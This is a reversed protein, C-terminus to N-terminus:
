KILELQVLPAADGKRPGLKLIRTYGGDRGVYRPALEAFVKKVIAKNGILGLAQRRAQANGEKGLTILKEAIGRAEKAKAETTTIKGYKMLDIVLNRYM